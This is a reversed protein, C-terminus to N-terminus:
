KLAQLTGKNALIKRVPENVDVKMFFYLVKKRGVERKEKGAGEGGGDNDRRVIFRTGLPDGEVRVVLRDQVVCRDCVFPTIAEQFPKM